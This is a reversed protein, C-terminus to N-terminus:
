TLLRTALIALSFGYTFNHKYLLLQPVQGWLYPAEKTKGQGFQKLVIAQLFIM